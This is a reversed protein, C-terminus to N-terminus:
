ALGSSQRQQPAAPPALSSSRDQQRQVSSRVSAASQTREQLPKQCPASAQPWLIPANLNEQVTGTAVSIRVTGALASEILSREVVRGRCLWSRPAQLGFAAFKAWARPGDSVTRRTHRCRLAPASLALLPVPDKRIGLGWAAGGDGQVTVASKSLGETFMRTQETLQSSMAQHMM